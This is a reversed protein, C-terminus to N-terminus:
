LKPKWNKDTSDCYVFITDNRLPNKLGELITSYCTYKQTDINQVINKISTHM